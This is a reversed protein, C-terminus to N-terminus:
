SSNNIVLKYSNDRGGLGHDRYARLVSRLTLSIVFPFNAAIRHLRDITAGTLGFRFGGGIVLGSVMLGGIM